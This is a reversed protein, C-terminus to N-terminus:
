PRSPPLVQLFGPTQLVRRPWGGRVPPGSTRLAAHHVRLTSPRSFDATHSVTSRCLPHEGPSPLPVQVGQACGTGAARRDDSGGPILTGDWAGRQWTPQAMCPPPLHHVWGLEGQGGLTGVPMACPMSLVLVHRIGSSLSTFQLGLDPPIIQPSTRSPTAYTDPRLPCAPAGWGSVPHPGGSLFGPLSVDVDLLSAEAAWFPVHGASALVRGPGWLTPAGCM